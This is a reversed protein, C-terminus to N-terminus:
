DYLLGSPIGRLYCIIHPTVEHILDSHDAGLYHSLRTDCVGDTVLYIYCIVYYCIVSILDSSPHMWAGGTALFEKVCWIFYILSPVPWWEGARSDHWRHMLSMSMFGEHRTIPESILSHDLDSTMYYVSDYRLTWPLLTM